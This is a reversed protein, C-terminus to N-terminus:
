SFSVAPNLSAGSHPRAFQIMAALSLAISAAALWHSGGSTYPEASRDKVMLNAMVFVFTAILEFMFTQWIEPTNPKLSPFEEQLQEVTASKDELVLFM